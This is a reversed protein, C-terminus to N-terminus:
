QHFYKWPNAVPTSRWKIRHCFVKFISTAWRFHQFLNFALASVLLNIGRSCLTRCKTDRHSDNVTNRSDWSVCTRSFKNGQKIYVKWSSIYALSNVEYRSYIYDMKLQSRENRGVWGILRLSKRFCLMSPLHYSLYNKSVSPLIKEILLHNQWEKHARQIMEIWINDHWGIM